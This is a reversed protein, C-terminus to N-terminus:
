AETVAVYFIYFDNWNRVCAVPVAPAAKNWDLGSSAGPITGIKLLDDIAQCLVRGDENLKFQIVMLMEPATTGLDLISVGDSPMNFYYDTAAPYGYGAAGVNAPQMTVGGGAKSFLATDLGSDWWPNISAVPTGFLVMKQVGNRVATAYQVMQAAKLQLTERQVSGGGRGSQTVAYSLAAFLAVAILILFLANGRNNKM